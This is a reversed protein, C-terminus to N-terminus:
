ARYITTRGLTIIRRGVFGEHPKLHNCFQHLAVQLTKNKTRIASSKARAVHQRDEFHDKERPHNCQWAICRILFAETQTRGHGHPVGDCVCKQWTEAHHKLRVWAVAGDPSLFRSLSFSVRVQVRTREPSRGRQTAGYSVCQGCSVAGRKGTAKALNTARPGIRQVNLKVITCFPDNSGNAIACPCALLHPEPHKCSITELARRFVASEALSADQRSYWVLRAGIAM